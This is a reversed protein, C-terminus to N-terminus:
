SSSDKAHVEVDKWTHTDIYRFIEIDIYTDVTQSNPEKM